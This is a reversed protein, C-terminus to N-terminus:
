TKDQIKLIEKLCNLFLVRSFGWINKYCKGKRSEETTIIGSHDVSSRRLYLFKFYAVERFLYKRQCLALQAMEHWALRLLPEPIFYKQFSLCVNQSLTHSKAACSQRIRGRTHQQRLPPKLSHLSSKWSVRTRARCPWTPGTWSQPVPSPILWLFGLGSGMCTLSQSYRCCM